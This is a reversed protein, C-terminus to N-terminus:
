SATVRVTHHGTAGDPLVGVVRDTQVEGDAGTARVAITHDGAAPAFDYRWQVWTDPSISEALEAPMWPGEDVQIEVASIGTHQHWAVGAVTMEGATGRAVDIRSEIKVPGEAGWGRDTWYASATDFRTVELEVV